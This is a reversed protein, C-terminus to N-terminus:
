REEDEVKKQMLSDMIKDKDDKNYEMISEPIVLKEELNIPEGRQLRAKEKNLMRQPIPWTLVGHKDAYHNYIELAQINNEVVTERLLYYINLLANEDEKRTTKRVSSHLLFSYLDKVSDKNEYDSKDVQNKNKMEEVYKGKKDVYESLETDGNEHKRLLDRFSTFDIKKLNLALM